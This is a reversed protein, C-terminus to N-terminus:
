KLAMKWANFFEKVTAYRNERKENVAKIAVEYLEKGAEWKEFSCDMEGGLLGFAVRGMTFVNTRADILAGLTFEEPSKFRDSGWFGEGVDNVSPSKRYFDIDCIKTEHRKFDYLISGDYFDVAVYGQVEVYAHFSFITELADLRRKIDLNKFRYYPSKPNIYKEVGGFSWHPHLCEGDFWKFVGVYGDSTPYYELLNILHPHKLEQYTTMAKKLINIADKPQGSYEITKAGAYKVFCKHKGDDVGFSINGSDQEDFVCFVKGYKKLM